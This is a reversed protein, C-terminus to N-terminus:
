NSILLSDYAYGPIQTPPGSLQPASISVGDLPSRFPLPHGGGWSVPTQPLTTLEGLPSRPEGFIFKPSNLAQFFVGALLLDTM